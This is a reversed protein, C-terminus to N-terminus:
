PIQHLRLREARADYGSLIRRLSEQIFGLTELFRRYSLLVRNSQGGVGLGIDESGIRGIYFRPMPLRHVVYEEDGAAIQPCGGILFAFGLLELHFLAQDGGHFLEAAADLAGVSKM